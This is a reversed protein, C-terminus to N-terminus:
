NFALFKCVPVSLVRNRLTTNMTGGAGIQPKAWILLSSLNYRFRHTRTAILKRGWQCWPMTWHQSGPKEFYWPSLESQKGSENERGKWERKFKKRSPVTPARHNCNKIVGEKCSAKWRTSKHSDNTNSNHQLVWRLNQKNNVHLPPWFLPSHETHIQPQPRSNTPHLREM